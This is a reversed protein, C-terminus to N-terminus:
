SELFPTGDAKTEGIQFLEPTGTKPVLWLDSTLMVDLNLYQSDGISTGLDAMFMNPGSWDARGRAVGEEAMTEFFGYGHLMLMQMPMHAMPFPMAMGMDVDWVEMPGMPVTPDQLIGPEMGTGMGNMSNGQAVVMSVPKDSDEDGFVPHFPILLFVLLAFVPATKKMKVSEFFNCGLCM